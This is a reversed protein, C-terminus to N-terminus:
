EVEVWTRTRAAEYVRDMVVDRQHTETAGVFNADEGEIWDLFAPFGASKAAPLEIKELKEGAAALHLDWGFMIAHGKTGCVQVQYPVATDDWSSALTGIAGNKFEFMAEGVEELGPYKGTGPGFCATVRAVDGMLWMLQDLGHTGLDGFAGSGARLPNAMWAWEGDFWGALAAGHCICTRIRTVQGFWGSEIRRKIEQVAADRMKYGTHFLVGAQEIEATMRTSDALSFGLPKEVFMHKGARALPTVLEEHLSTESLIIVADLRKNEVIEDFGVAYCGLKAGAAQARAHDHDWVSTVQIGRQIIKNLFDPTHIHAVGVLAVSKM